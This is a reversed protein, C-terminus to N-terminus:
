QCLAVVRGGNYTVAVAYASSKKPIFTISGNGSEDLCLQELALVKDPKNQWLELDAKDAAVVISIEQGAAEKLAVTVTMEGDSNLEAKVAGKGQSDIAASSNEETGPLTETGSEEDSVSGQEDGKADESEDSNNNSGCAAFSLLLVIFLMCLIIKKMNGGFAFCTKNLIDCKAFVTLRKINM